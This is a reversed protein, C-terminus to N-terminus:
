QACPKQRIQLARRVSQRKRDWLHRRLPVRLVPVMRIYHHNFKFFFFVNLIEVRASKECLKQWVFHNKNVFINISSKSVYDIYFYDNNVFLFYNMNAIWFHCM